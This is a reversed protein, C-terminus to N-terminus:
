IPQKLRRRRRYFRVTHQKQESFQQQDLAAQQAGLSFSWSLPRSFGNGAALSDINLLTFNFLKAQHTTHTIGLVCAYFTLRPVADIDKMM